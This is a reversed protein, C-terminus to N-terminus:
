VIIAPIAIEEREQFTPTFMQSRFIVVIYALSIGFRVLNHIFLHMLLICVM